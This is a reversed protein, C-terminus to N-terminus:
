KAAESQSNQLRVKVIKCILPLSDTAFTVINDQIAFSLLSFYSFDCTERWFSSIEKATECFINIKALCFLASSITCCGDSVYGNSKKQNM